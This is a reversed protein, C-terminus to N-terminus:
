FVSGSETKGGSFKCGMIKVQPIDASIKTNVFDLNIFTAGKVRTYPEYEESTPLKWTKIGGDSLPFLEWVVLNPEASNDFVPRDNPDKAILTQFAKTGILPWVYGTYTGPQVCIRKNKGLNWIEIM